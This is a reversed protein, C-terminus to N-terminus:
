ATGKSLFLEFDDVSRVDNNLVARYILDSTISDRYEPQRWYAGKIELIASRNETTLRERM